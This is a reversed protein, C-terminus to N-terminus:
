AIKEKRGFISKRLIGLAKSIQNEVTKTSINLAEGIEKYSMEEYRSLAFVAKCREPLSQVVEDIEEFLEQGYIDEEISIDKNEFHAVTDLDQMQNAKAKVFNLSRYYVSRKLYGVISGSIEITERKKWMETLVEQVIDESTQQDVVVKFATRCMEEYYQDYIQRFCEQPNSKFLAEITSSGKDLRLYISNTNIIGLCDGIKCDVVLVFICLGSSYNASEKFQFCFLSWLCNFIM